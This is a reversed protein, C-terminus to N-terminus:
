QPLRDELHGELSDHRGTKMCKQLRKGCQIYALGPFGFSGARPVQHSRFCHGLFSQLEEKFVFVSVKSDQAVIYAM